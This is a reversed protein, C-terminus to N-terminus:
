HNKIKSFMGSRVAKLDGNSNPDPSPLYKFMIVEDFGKKVQEDTIIRFQEYGTRMSFIKGVELADEQSEVLFIYTPPMKYYREWFKSGIFVSMKDNVKRSFEVPVDYRRVSELIFTQPTYGQMIQFEASFRMSRRGINVDHVPKFYALDGGRADALALYFQGTTLYKMVLEVPRVCDTSLWSVVDEDYTSFHALIQVGGQDLCYVKFADAPIDSLEYAALAFYNLVRNNSYMTLLAPLGAPDLGKMTLLKALQEESAFVFNRLYKLVEVMATRTYDDVGLFDKVVVYEAVNNKIKHHFSQKFDYNASLLKGEEATVYSQLDAM